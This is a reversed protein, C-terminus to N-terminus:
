SRGDDSDPSQRILDEVSLEDKPDFRKVQSAIYARLDSLGKLQQQVRVKDVMFEPCPRESKVGSWYNRALERCRTENSATLIASKLEAGIADVWNMDGCHTISEEDVAVDYLYRKDHTRWYSEASALDDTVFMSGARRPKSPFETARVDELIAEARRGIDEFNAQYDGESELEDDPAAARRDVRFYPKAAM